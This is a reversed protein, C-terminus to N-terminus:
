STKLTFGSAYFITVPHKNRPILSFVLPIISFGFDGVSVMLFVLIVNLISFLKLDYIFTTKPHAHFSTLEKFLCTVLINPTADPM